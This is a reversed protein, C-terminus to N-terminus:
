WKCKRNEERLTGYWYEIIGAINLLMDRPTFNKKGLTEGIEELIKIETDETM